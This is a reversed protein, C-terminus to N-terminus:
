GHLMRYERPGLGLERKFGRNMRVPNSFGCRAALTKVALDSTALLSRPPSGIM